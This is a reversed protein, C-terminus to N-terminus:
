KRTHFLEPHQLWRYVNTNEDFLDPLFTHLGSGIYSRSESKSPGITSAVSANDNGINNVIDKGRGDLEQKWLGINAIANKRKFEDASYQGVTGIFNQMATQMGQQRAAHARTYYDIDFQRASQRRNAEAEGAQLATRAYQSQYENNQNQIGSLANAINQQTTNLSALRNLQKQATSLGGSANTIYNSRGEADRLQQMIPYPNVRLGALTNLAKRQYPNTQYTDPAYPTGNKADIYQSISALGRLASPIANGYWSLGYDFGPLQEADKAGNNALAKENESVAKQIESLQGLTNDINQQIPEAAKEWTKLTQSALWGSTKPKLSNLKQQAIIFPAADFKFENDTVPNILSGFVDDTKELRARATDNPGHTILNANQSFRNWVGEGKSLWSNQPALTLGNNTEVWFKEFTSNTFPNVPDKTSKNSKVFQKGTNEGFAKGKDYGFLMQSETNGYKKAQEQQISTTLADSRNMINYNDVRQQAEELERKAKRERSKGGFLGGVFGALAGGLAGIATGIGPNIITGIAAGAAAGSGATTFMNATNQSKVADMEASKNIDNFRTYGIDGVSAPTTGYKNIYDNSTTTFQHANYVSAATGAVGSAVAGWDGGYRSTATGDGSTAGGTAGQTSAASQLGPEKELKPLRSANNIQKYKRYSNLQM